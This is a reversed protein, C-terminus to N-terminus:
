LADRRPLGWQDVPSDMIDVLLDEIHKRGDSPDGWGVRLPELPKLPELPQIKRLAQRVVVPLALAMAADLGERLIDGYDADAPLAGYHGELLHMLARAKGMLRQRTRTDM